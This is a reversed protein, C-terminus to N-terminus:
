VVSQEKWIWNSPCDLLEEGCVRCKFTPLEIKFDFDKDEYFGEPVKFKRKKM